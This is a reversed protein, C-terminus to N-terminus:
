TPSGYPTTPRRRPWCTPSALDLPCVEGPALPLWARRQESHISYRDDSRFPDGYGLLFHNSQRLLQELESGDAPLDDESDLFLISDENTREWSTDTEALVRDKAAEGEAETEYTRGHGWVAVISSPGSGKLYEDVMFNFKRIVRHRDNPAEHNFDDDVVVEATTTALVGRVIVDHDIITEELSLVGGIHEPPPEGAMVLTRDPQPPQGCSLLLALLPILLAVKNM